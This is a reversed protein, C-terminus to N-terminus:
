KVTADSPSDKALIRIIDKYNEKPKIIKKQQYKLTARAKLKVMKLNAERM